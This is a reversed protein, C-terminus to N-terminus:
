VINAPTEAQSRVRAALRARRFHRILGFFIYGLCMCFVAIEKFQILLAILVLLVIFTRLRTRTQLDINKGSPYRITSVMLFGVLLMLFPLSYAWSQLAKDQKALDLLLLVLSAVTAAAAPVPLGVFDKNSDKKGPHLL